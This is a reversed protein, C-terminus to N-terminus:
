FIKNAIQKFKRAVTLAHEADTLANHMAPDRNPLGMEWFLQDSSKAGLMVEGLSYTDVIRNSINLQVGQRAFMDYLFHVDFSAVNHGLLQIARSCDFHEMLFEGIKLVADEETLGNDDLHQKSLGHVKFAGDHWVSIGDWKVEIYLSAIPLFTNIDAVIFGGSVVQCYEGTERNTSPSPCPRFFMSSTEFDLALILQDNSSM